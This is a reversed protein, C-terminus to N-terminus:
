SKRLRALCLCYEAIYGTALGAQLLFGAAHKRLNRERLAGTFHRFSCEIVQRIRSRSQRYFDLRCSQRDSQEIRRTAVGAAYGRTWFHSVRMKEKPVHHFVKCELSYYVKQEDVPTVRRYIDLPKRDAGLRITKGEMGLNVDFMGLRELVNKRIVLNSGPAGCTTSFGSKQEFKRTELEDDFWSPKPDTYYPYIPGCVFDPDFQTIVRLVCAVYDPEAIADDDLFAVYTGRANRCGINRAHSVGQREEKLYRFHGYRCCHAAVLDRTRDTSNNDVVIVEFAKGACSQEALSKLCYDLFRERNFTAVIISLFPEHSQWSAAKAEILDLAGM